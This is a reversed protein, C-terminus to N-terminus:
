AISEDLYERITTVDEPCNYEQNTDRNVINSGRASRSKLSCWFVFMANGVLKWKVGERRMELGYWERRLLGVWRLEWVVISSHPLGSM